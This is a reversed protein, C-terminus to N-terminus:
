RSEVAVFERGKQRVIRSVAFRPDHDWIVWWDSDVAEGLLQMKVRRSEAAYLDYATCWMRKLHPIAPCLDGSFLAGQGASEIVIAQHGRTHGGTHRTRLGPLIEVDNGTLILQGFPEISVFNAATYSGALEPAQSVADEWELRNIFYRANPFTPLLRRAADFTTAGGAHDWHLHSFVVADVDSPQVGHPALLQPMTLSPELAHASRDLPALKDGQGVDILVTHQENRALVFRIAVPIRNNADAPTVNQWIAKPVIGYMVGGDLWFRGSTIIDLQWDGVTLSVTQDDFGASAINQSSPTPPERM